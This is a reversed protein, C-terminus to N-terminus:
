SKRSFVRMQSFFASSVITKKARTYMDMMGSSSTACWARMRASSRLSMEM